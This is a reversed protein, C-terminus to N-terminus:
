IQLMELFSLAIFDVDEKLGFSNKKKPLQRYDIGPLNVAKAELSEVM